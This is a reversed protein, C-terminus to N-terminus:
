KFKGTGETSISQLEGANEEYFIAALNAEVKEGAALLPATGADIASVLGTGPISTFPEVAMVRCRGYWPYGFSGRLEQWFWLYPFVRLPWALGFGFRHKRSTYGYWGEEFDCLYGFETIREGGEPIRSLDVPEGSKGKILPWRGSAGAPIRVHPSIEASHNLFRGTPVNLTCDGSLFPDGIAPHHGWMYHLDEGGKNVISEEMRVGALNKEVIMTRRLEFPSRRLAVHFEVSVSSSSSSRITYDWSRISAEGHFNLPANRYLCEDGGNPFIEQWGGEYQDMWAAETNGGAFPFALGSPTLGWPSKWLVDMERPKYCLSYIDAGKEPLVTVSVFDNELTVARQGSKLFTETV